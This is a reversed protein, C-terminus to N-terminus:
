VQFPTKGLVASHLTDYLNLRGGSAVLEPGNRFTTVNNMILSKATDPSLDPLEDALLAVTGTVHPAAM